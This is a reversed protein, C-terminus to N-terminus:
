PIAAPFVPGFSSSRPRGILWGSRTNQLTQRSTLWPPWKSWITRPLDLRLTTLSAVIKHCPCCSAATALWISRKWFPDDQVAVDLLATQGGNAFAGAQNRDDQALWVSRRTLVTEDGLVHLNAQILHESRSVLRLCRPGTFDCASLHAILRQRGLLHWAHIGCTCASWSSPWWLCSSRLLWLRKEHHCSKEEEV